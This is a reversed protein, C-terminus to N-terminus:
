DLYIELLFPMARKFRFRILRSQTSAFILQNPQCVVSCAEGGHTSKLLRCPQCRGALLCRWAWPARYPHNHSLGISPIMYWCFSAVSSYEPRPRPGLHTMSSPTGVETLARLPSLAAVQHATGVQMCRVRQSTTSHVMTPSSIHQRHSQRRLYRRLHSLTSKIVPHCTWLALRSRPVWVMTHSISAGRSKSPLHLRMIVIHRHCTRAGLWWCPHLHMM